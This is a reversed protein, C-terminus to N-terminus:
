SSGLSWCAVWFPSGWVSADRLGIPKTPNWPNWTFRCSHLQCSNLLHQMKLILFCLGYDFLNNKTSPLRQPMHCVWWFTVKAQSLLTEHQESLCPARFGHNEPIEKNWKLHERKPELLDEPPLRLDRATRRSAGALAWLAGAAQRAHPVVEAGAGSPLSDEAAKAALGWPFRDTTCPRFM